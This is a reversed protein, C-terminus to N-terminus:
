NKKKKKMMSVEPWQKANQFLQQSCEMNMAASILNGEGRTRIMLPCVTHGTYSHDDLGFEEEKHERSCKKSFPIIL